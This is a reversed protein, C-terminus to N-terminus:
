KKDEGEDTNGVSQKAGDTVSLDGTNTTLSTHFDGGHNGVRHESSKGSSTINGFTQDIHHLARPTAREYNRTREHGATTYNEDDDNRRPEQHHLEPARSNPGLQKVLQGNNELTVPERWQGPGRLSEPNV